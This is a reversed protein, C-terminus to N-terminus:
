FSHVPIKEEGIKPTTVTIIVSEAGPASFAVRFLSTKRRDGSDCTEGDTITITATSNVDLPDNPDFAQNEESPDAPSGDVTVNVIYNKDDPSTM